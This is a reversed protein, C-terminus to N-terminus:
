ICLPHDILLGVDVTTLHQLARLKEREELPEAHSTELTRGILGSLREIDNSGPRPCAVFFPAACLCLCNCMRMFM